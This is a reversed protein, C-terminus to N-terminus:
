AGALRASQSQGYDQGSQVVYVSAFGVRFDFANVPNAGFRQKWWPPTGPPWEKLHKWDSLRLTLYDESPTRPAKWDLSLIRSGTPLWKLAETSFSREGAFLELGYM